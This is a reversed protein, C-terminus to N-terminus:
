SFLERNAHRSVRRMDGEPTIVTLAEVHVVAPRGDPGAANSAISDGVTAMTTRTGAAQPDGPRMRDAISRWPTNAQVEVLGAREDVGLVRSLRLPDYRRSHRVAERLEAASLPVVSADSM